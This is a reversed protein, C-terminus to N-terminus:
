TEGGTPKHTESVAEETEMMKVPVMIDFGGGFTWSNKPLNPL